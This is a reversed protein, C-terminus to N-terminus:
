HAAVSASEPDVKQGPIARMVGGVIVRDDKTLGKEIVRL